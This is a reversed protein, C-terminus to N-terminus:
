KKEREREKRKCARACDFLISYMSVLHICSVGCVMCCVCLQVPQYLSEVFWVVCVCVTACAPVLCMDCVRCVCLMIQTAGKSGRYFRLWTMFKGRIWGKHTARQNTSNHLFDHLLEHTILIRNNFNLIGLQGGDFPEIKGGDV